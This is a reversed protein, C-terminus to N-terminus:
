RQKFFSTNTFHCLMYVKSNTKKWEAYNELFGDLNNSLNKTKNSPIQTYWLKNKHQQKKKRGMQPSNGICISHVYTFLNKIHVSTGTEKPYISLLSVARDYPLLINLNGHFQWATKRLLQVMKGEWWCNKAKNCCCKM